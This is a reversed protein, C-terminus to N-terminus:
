VQSSTFRPPRKEASLATGEAFDAALTADRVPDHAVVVAPAAIEALFTIAPGRSDDAIWDCLDPFGDGLM